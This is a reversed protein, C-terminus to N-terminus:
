NNLEAAQEAKAQAIFYAKLKMMEDTPFQTEAEGRVAKVFFDKSANNYGFNLNTLVVEQYQAVDQASVQKAESTESTENTVENTSSSEEVNKFFSDKAIQKAEDGNKLKAIENSPQIQQILIQQNDAYQNINSILGYEM